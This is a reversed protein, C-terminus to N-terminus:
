PTVAAPAVFVPDQAMKLSSTFTHFGDVDGGGDSWGGIKVRTYITTATTVGAVGDPYVKRMAYANHGGVNERLFTQGACDAQYFYPVETEMGTSVGVGTIEEGSICHESLFETEQGFEPLSQPCCIDVYTLAAFETATLDENQPLATSIQLTTEKIQVAM